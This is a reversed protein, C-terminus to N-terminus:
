KQGIKKLKDVLAVILPYLVAPETEALHMEIQVAIFGILGALGGEYRIGEAFQRETSTTSATTIAQKLDEFTAITKDGDDVDYDARHNAMAKLATQFYPNSSDLQALANILLGSLKLYGSDANLFWMAFFAVSFEASTQSVDREQHAM